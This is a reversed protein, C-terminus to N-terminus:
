RAATAYDYYGQYTASPIAAARNLVVGAIRKADLADVARRVTPFPTSGAAIVLLIMDVMEALVNADPLLGAPPTDIVVWEFKAGAQELIARMRESTLLAMPDGNAQGATLVTLTPSYQVLAPRQPEPAMLAEHLGSGNPIQLVTHITPRRLDADILLVQRRFSASLTLALNTATLSKGEGAMASAVMVVRSEKELEIQSLSVVLKRYQEIVIPEVPGVILKQAKKADEPSLPVQVPTAAPVQEIASADVEDGEDFADGAGSMPDPLEASMPIMPEVQALDSQGRGARRLAEEIRSM